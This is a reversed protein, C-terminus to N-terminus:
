TPTVARAGELRKLEELMEEFSKNKQLKAFLAANRRNREQELLLEIETEM